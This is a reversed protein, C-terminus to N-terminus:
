VSKFFESPPKGLQRLFMTSFASPSGYGVALSTDFISEGKALLEFARLLRAQQRWQGLTLGTERIFARQLTRTDIKLMGAWKDVSTSDDPHRNIAKGIIRLRRDKPLPLKLPLASLGGIEDTILHMLRGARSQAEYPLEISDAELILERLLGSVAAVFCRKPLGRASATRIYLTHMAVHNVTRFGHKVGAPIWLARTTPVVWLADDATVVTLGQAVYILQSVLLRHSAVAVEPEYDASLATVPMNRGAATAYPLESFPSRM